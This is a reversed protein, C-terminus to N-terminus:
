QLAFELFYQRQLFTHKTALTFGAKQLEKMVREQPVLHHKSFGLKGSREDHYFDIIAIRGEPKLGAKAKELYAITHDLHHYVNCLFILDVSSVPLSPDDPTALIFQTHSPRGLDSLHKRNYDLMQQEVDVAMVTGKSGVARSFRRTFYGSGAGIDALVMGPKLNLAQIVEDPKQYEDRGPRELNHIYDNIDWPGRHHTCGSGM